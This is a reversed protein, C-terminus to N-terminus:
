RPKEVAAPAAPKVVLRFDPTIPRTLDFHGKLSEVPQGEVLIRLQRLYPFNVALTDALAYVTLLESWSGGPHGDILSRGFDIQAENGVVTVGRLETQAPFVPALDGVPGDLLARVTAQVCEHEVLCDAIERGEAALGVGDGTAFYLTVTRLQRQEGPPASAPPPTTALYHRLFLGGFVLLVVIFAWGVLPDRRRRPPNRDIM